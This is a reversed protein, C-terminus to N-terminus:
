RRKIEEDFFCEKLKEVPVGASTLHIEARTYLRSTWSEHCGLVEAAKNNPMDYVDRLHFVTRAPMKIEDVVTLWSHFAEDATFGFLDVLSPVHVALFGRRSEFYERDAVALRMAEDMVTEYVDADSAEVSLKLYACAFAEKTIAEFNSRPDPYELFTRLRVEDFLRFLEKRRAKKTEGPGALSEDYPRSDGDGSPPLPPTPSM